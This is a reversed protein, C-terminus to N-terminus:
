RDCVSQFNTAALEVKAQTPPQSSSNTAFLNFLRLSFLGQPHRRNPKLRSPCDETYICDSELFSRLKLFLIARLWRETSEGIEEV